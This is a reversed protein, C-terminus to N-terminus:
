TRSTEDVENVLFEFVSLAFVHPDCMYDSTRWDSKLDNLLVFSDWWGQQECWDALLVFGEKSFFTGGPVAIEKQFYNNVIDHSITM